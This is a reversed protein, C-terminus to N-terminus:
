SLLQPSVRLWCITVADHLNISLGSLSAKWQLEGTEMKHATIRGVLLWKIPVLLWMYVSSVLLASVPLLLFSVVESWWLQRCLASGATGTQLWCDLSAALLGRWSDHGGLNIWYWLAISPVVALWMFSFVVLLLATSSVWLM